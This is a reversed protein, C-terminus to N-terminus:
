PGAGTGPVVAESTGLAVNNNPDRTTTGPALFGGLAGGLGGRALGRIAGGFRHHIFNAALPQSLHSQPADFGLDMDIM